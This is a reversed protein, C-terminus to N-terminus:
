SLFTGRAKYYKEHIIWVATFIKWLGVSYYYLGMASKKSCYSNYMFLDAQYVDVPLLFQHLEASKWRDM